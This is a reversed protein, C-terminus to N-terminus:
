RQRWTLNDAYIEGANFGSARGVQYKLKKAPGTISFSVTRWGSGSQGITEQGVDNGQDDLLTVRAFLTGNDTVYHCDMALNDVQRTADLEVFTIGSTDGGGSTIEAEMSPAPNGFGSALGDQNTYDQYGGGDYTVVFTQPPQPCDCLTEWNNNCADDTAISWRTLLLGVQWTTRIFQALLRIIALPVASNDDVARTWAGVADVMDARTLTYPAGREKVACFASCRWADEVAQQQRAADLDNVIAQTLVAVANSLQEAVKVPLNPAVRLLLTVSDDYQALADVASQAIAIASTVFDDFVEFAPGTAAWICDLQDDLPDESVGPADGRQPGDTPPAGEDPEAPPEGEGLNKLCENVFDCLDYVFEVENNYIDVADEATLAGSRQQWINIEGLASMQGNLYEWYETPSLVVVVQRQTEDVADPTPLRLKNYAPVNYPYSM